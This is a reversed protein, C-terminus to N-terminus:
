ETRSVSLVADPCSECRKCDIVYQGDLRYVSKGCRSNLLTMDLSERVPWVSIDRMNLENGEDSYALTECLEFCDCATAFVTDGSATSNKLPVSVIIKVSGHIDTKVAKSMSVQEGDIKFAGKENSLFIGRRSISIGAKCPEPKYGDSVVIYLCFTKEVPTLWLKEPPSSHLVESSIYVDEGSMYAVRLSPETEGEFTLRFEVAPDGESQGVREEIFAGSLGIDGILEYTTNEAVAAVWPGNGKRKECSLINLENKDANAPNIELIWGTLPASSSGNGSVSVIVTTKGKAACYGKLEFEYGELTVATTDM